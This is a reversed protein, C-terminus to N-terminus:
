EKTFILPRWFKADNWLPRYEFAAPMVGIIEVPQGDLRVIRGLVDSRGGYRQQWLSHSIVIVHNRGPQTEEATFARGLVPQAGFLAFIEATASVGQLRTTAQGPEAFINSGWELNTLLDFATTRARIEALETFSFQDMRGQPTVGIVRAIREPQPFPGPRFLLAQVGSVMSTNVGIGLALTLLAVITHGPSRLLSRVALKM